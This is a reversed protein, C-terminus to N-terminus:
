EQYLYLLFEGVYNEEDYLSDFVFLLWSQEAKNLKSKHLLNMIQRDDLLWLLSIVTIQTSSQLLDMIEDVQKQLKEIERKVYRLDESLYNISEGNALFTNNRFLKHLNCEDLKPEKSRRGIRLVDEMGFAEVMKLLFEDLAHNKYTLLLIPLPIDDFNKRLPADSIKKCYYKSKDPSFTVVSSTEELKDKQCGIAASSLRERQLAVESTSKRLGDRNSKNRDSDDKWFEKKNRLDDSASDFKNSQHSLAVRTGPTNQEVSLDEVVLDIIEKRHDSQASVTRLKKCDKYSSDIKDSKEILNTSVISEDCINKLTSGVGESYIDSIQEDTKWLESQDNGSDFEASASDKKGWSTLKQEMDKNTCEIKVTEEAVKLTVCDDTNALSIKGTSREAIGSRERRKKVKRNIRLLM